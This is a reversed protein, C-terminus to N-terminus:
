RAESVKQLLRDLQEEVPLESSHTSAPTVMGVRVSGQDSANTIQGIIRAVERADSYVM